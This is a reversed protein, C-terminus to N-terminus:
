YGQVDAAKQLMSLWEIARKLEFEVFDATYAGGQQALKGTIYLVVHFRTVASINVVM